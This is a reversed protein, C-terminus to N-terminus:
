ALFRIYGDIWIKGSPFIRGDDLFESALATERAQIFGPQVDIGIMPVIRPVTGMPVTKDRTRGGQKCSVTRDEPFHVSVLFANNM